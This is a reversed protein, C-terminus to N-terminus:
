RKGSELWERLTPEDVDVITLLRELAEIRQSATLETGADFHMDSAIAVAELRLLLVDYLDRPLRLQAWTGVPDSVLIAGGTFRFGHDENALRAAVQWGSEALIDSQRSKRHGRHKSLRQGKRGDTFCNKGSRKRSLRVPRGQLVVAEHNCRQEWISYNLVSSAEQDRGEDGFPHNARICCPNCGRRASSRCDEARYRAVPVFRLVKGVQDSAIANKKAVPLWIVLNKDEETINVKLLAMAEVGSLYTMGAVGPTFTLVPTAGNAKAHEEIKRKAVDQAAAKSGVGAAANGDDDVEGAVNLMSQYAYRRAYTIGSGVSQADYRERMTGPLELKSSIWEGSSHALLTTIAINRETGAETPLQLVALENESLADATADILNELPVYKARYAPNDRDKLAPKFAKRAKSLALILKGITESHEFVTMPTVREIALESVKTEDM